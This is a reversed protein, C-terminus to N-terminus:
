YCQVDLGVGATSTDTCRGNVSLIARPDQVLHCNGNVEVGGPVVPVDRITVGFALFDYCSANVSIYGAAAVHVSVCPALSFLGLEDFTTIAKDNM